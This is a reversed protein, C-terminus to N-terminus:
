RNKPFLPFVTKITFSYFIIRWQPVRRWCLCSVYLSILLFLTPCFRFAFLFFLHVTLSWAKGSWIYNCEKNCFSHLWKVLWKFTSFKVRYVNEPSFWTFFVPVSWWDVRSICTFFRSKHVLSGRSICTAEERTNWPFFKVYKKRSHIGPIKM